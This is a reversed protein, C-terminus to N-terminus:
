DNELSKLKERLREPVTVRPYREKWHAWAARAQAREHGDILAEIKSLEALAVEDPREEYASKKLDPDTIAPSWSSTEQDARRVNSGTVEVRQPGGTALPAALPALSPASKVALKAAPASPPSPAVPKAAETAQAVPTNSVPPQQLRQDQATTRSSDTAGGLVLTRELQPQSAAPSATAPVLAPAAAPAPAPAPAPAQAVVNPTPPVVVVEPPAIHIPPAPPPPPPEIKAPPAFDSRAPSAEALGGRSEDREKTLMSEASKQRDSLASNMSNRSQADNSESTNAAPAPAPAAETKSVHESPYEPISDLPSQGQWHQNVLQVSILLMAAVGLPIQWRHSWSKRRGPQIAGGNTGFGGDSDNAADKLTEQRTPGESTAADGQTSAKPHEPHESHEKPAKTPANSVHNSLDASVMALIALDLEAPSQEQPLSQLMKSLADDGSMFAALEVDDPEPVDHERTTM